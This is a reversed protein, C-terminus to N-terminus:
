AQPALPGRFCPGAVPVAARSASVDRPWSIRLLRGEMQQPSRPVHRLSLWCGLVILWVFRTFHERNQQQRARRHASRESNTQQASNNPSRNLNVSVSVCVISASVDCADGASKSM